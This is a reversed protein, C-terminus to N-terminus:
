RVCCGPLGGGNPGAAFTASGASAGIVAIVTAAVCCVLTRTVRRM